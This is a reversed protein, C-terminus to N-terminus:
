LLDRLHAYRPYQLYQNVLECGIGESAKLVRKTTSLEQHGDSGCPRDWDRHILIRSAASDSPTQSQSDVLHPTHQIKRTYGNHLWKNGSKTFDDVRHYNSNEDPKWKTFRVAGAPLFGVSCYLQEYTCRHCLNCPKGRRTDISVKVLHWQLFDGAKRLRGWIQFVSSPPWIDVYCRTIFVYEKKNEENKLDVMPWSCFILMTISAFSFLTSRAQVPQPLDMFCIRTTRQIARPHLPSRPSSIMSKTTSCLRWTLAVHTCSNSNRVEEVPEDGSIYMALPVTLKTADDSSLM